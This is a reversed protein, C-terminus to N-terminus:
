TRPKRKSKRRRVATRANSKRKSVKSNLKNAIEYLLFQRETALDRLPLKNWWRYRTRSQSRANRSGRDWHTLAEHLMEDEVWHEADDDDYVDDGALGFKLRAQKWHFDRPTSSGGM